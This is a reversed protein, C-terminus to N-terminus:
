NGTFTPTRKELLATVGEMHDDTTHLLAQMAASLEMIQEYTASQGQRLLSKAFKLSRPPQKAVKGALEMAEDMLKNDDVKKSALGWEVATDADYLDGTFIMEAARSLGVIRPLLWAGGDGPIIGLRLFPMGFRASASAIRMDAMCAVDCGLGVAPGNVAAILPIEFKWLSNVIMHINKTYGERVQAPNGGFAGTREKMAKLDGGASFARGAGTLVACRIEPDAVIENTADVFAQGDGAKGLPNLQDPRNMTIVAVAGHKELKILDHM